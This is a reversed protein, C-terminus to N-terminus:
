EFDLGDTDGKTKITDQEVYHIDDVDCYSPCNYGGGPREELRDAIRSVIVIAAVLILDGLSM